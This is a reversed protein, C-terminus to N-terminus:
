VKRLRVKLEPPASTTAMTSAEPHLPGLESVPAWGVWGAAEPGLSAPSPNVALLEPKEAKHGYVRSWTAHISERTISKDKGLM